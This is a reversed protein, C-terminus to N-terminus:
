AATARVPSVRGSHNVRGLVYRRSRFRNCRVTSPITPSADEASPDRQPVPLPSPESEFEDKPMTPEAATEPKFTEESKKGANDGFPDNVPESFSSVRMVADRTKLGAPLVSSRLDRRRASPGRRARGHHTQRGATTAIDARQLENREGPGPSRAMQAQHARGLQQPGREGTGAFGPLGRGAPVPGSRPGHFRAKATRPGLPRRPM